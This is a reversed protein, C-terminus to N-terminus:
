TEPLHPFVSSDDPVQTLAGTRPLEAREPRAGVEGVRLHQTLEVFSRCALDLCIIADTSRQCPGTRRQSADRLRRGHRSQEVPMLRRGMRSWLLRVLPPEGSKRRVRVSGQIGCRGVFEGARAVEFAEHHSLEIAWQRRAHLRDAGPSRGSEQGIGGRIRGDRRCMKDGCM